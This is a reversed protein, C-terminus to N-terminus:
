FLSKIKELFINAVSPSPLFKKWVLITKNSLEPYLPIFSFNENVFPKASGELTLAATKGSNLFTVASALINQTAFINLKSFDEKLWSEIQKKIVTRSPTILQVSNLDKNTIRKKSSLLNNKHILIGWKEKEKMQIFDFKELNAGELILGFDLLGSEIKELVSDSNGSQFDFTVDPHLTKFEEIKTCLTQASLFNGTGISINGSLNKRTLFDSEIKKMLQEVEEARKKLMVGSDTLTLRKGREFLLVGLEEELSHMQRSLNPQTTHLVDAARSINEEQVVALFNHLTRLEM